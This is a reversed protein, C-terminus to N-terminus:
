LSSLLFHVLSVITLFENKFAFSTIKNRVKKGVKNHEFSYADCAANM